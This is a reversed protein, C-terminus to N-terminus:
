APLRTQSESDHCTLASRPPASVSRVDSTFGTRDSQDGGPDECYKSPRASPLGEKYIGQIHNCCEAEM